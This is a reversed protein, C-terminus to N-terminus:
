RLRPPPYGGYWPGALRFDEAARHQIAYTGGGGGMERIEREVIARFRAQMELMKTVGQDRMWYRLQVGDISITLQDDSAAGLIVADIAALAVMAPTAATPNPAVSIAGQEADYATGAAITQGNSVGGTVHTARVRYAYRGGKWAGTTSAPVFLAFEDAGAGATCAVTDRSYAGAFSVALTWGASRPFDQYSLTANITEGAAIKGDPIQDYLQAM